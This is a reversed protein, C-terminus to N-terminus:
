VGELSSITHLQLCQDHSFAKQKRVSTTASGGPVLHVPLTQAPELISAPEPAESMAVLTGLTETHSHFYGDTCTQM